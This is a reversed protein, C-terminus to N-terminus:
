PIPASQAALQIEGLLWEQYPLISTLAPQQGLGRNSIGVLVPGRAEERLCPGGMDGRYAYLEPRGFFFREEGPELIGMVREQSFRRKSDLAGPGEAYGYGVVILVEGVRAGKQALPIPPIHKGVPEELVLVALDARSSVVKGERDLVLQLRPHPRVRGPQNVSWAEAPEEPTAPEYTNLVVTAQKACHAGDMLFADQSAAERRQCVCHGATLVLRPSVLVGSCEQHKSSDAADHVIVMVTAPYRNTSDAEGLLPSWRLEPPVDPQQALATSSGGDPVEPVPPKQCGGCGASAMVMWTVWVRWAQSNPLCHARMEADAGEESFLTFSGQM